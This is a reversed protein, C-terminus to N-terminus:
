YTRLVRRWVDNKGKFFLEKKQLLGWKRGVNSSGVLPVHLRLLGEHDEKSPILSEVANNIFLKKKQHDGCKAANWGGLLLGLFLKYLKLPDQIVERCPTKWKIFFGLM